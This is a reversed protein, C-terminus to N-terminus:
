SPIQQGDHPMEKHLVVSGAFCAVRVYLGGKCEILLEAGHEYLLSRMLRLLLLM